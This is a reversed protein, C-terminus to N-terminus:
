MAAKTGFEYSVNETKVQCMEERVEVEMQIELSNFFDKLKENLVQEVEKHTCSSPVCLAILFFIL